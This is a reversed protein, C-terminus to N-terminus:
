SGTRQAADAVGQDPCTEHYERDGFFERWERRDFNRNAVRCAREYAEDLRDVLGIQWRQLTGEAGGSILWGDEFKLGLVAGTHGSLEFRREGTSTDWVRIKGYLNGSALRRDDGSFAVARVGVDEPERLILEPEGRWGGDRNRRWIRVTGDGSASALRDGGHSFELANVPGQHGSLTQLLKNAKPDWIGIEGDKGGTALELGKGRRDFALSLVSRKAELRHLYENKAVDVLQVVGKEDSTALLRSDPSFAASWIWVEHRSNELQLTARLRGNGPALADLAWVHVALKGGSSALFRRDPSFALAWVEDKHSGIAPPPGGGGRLSTLEISGDQGGTAALDDSRLAVSTLATRHHTWVTRPALGQRSWLRIMGDGAGTALTGGDPSIAVATAGQVHGTLETAPGCDDTCSSGRSSRGVATAPAGTRADTFRVAGDDGASVLLNGDPTFVVGRVLARHVSRREFRLKGDASWSRLGGDVTGVAIAGDPAVALCYIASDGRYFVKDAGTKLNWRRITRDRGASVLVEGDPPEFAIGSVVGHHEDLKRPPQDPQSLDWIRIHGDIDGMALKRGTPKFALTLVVMGEKVMGEKVVGKKQPVAEVHFDDTAWVVVQGQETGVALRTGDRSFALAKIREGCSPAPESPARRTLTCHDLAYLPQHTALDWILLRGDASGSALLKGDPSIALSDISQRHEHLTTELGPNSLLLSLISTRAQYLDALKGLEELTRGAEIALLLAQDVQYGASRAQIALAKAGQIEAKRKGAYAALGLLGTILAVVSVAAFLAQRRRRKRRRRRREAEESADLFDREEDSLHLRGGSRLEAARQLRGGRWLADEARGEGQWLGAAHHVERRVVLAERGEELWHALKGWATFLAEHAVEVTTDDHDGRSTLLRAEVFQELCPHVSVPLDSWAVPARVLRDQDDFRAMSLFAEKLEPEIARLEGAAPLVSEAVRAVAGRVGGLRDRYQEVTLRGERGFQLYLERLAFAVLPLANGGEADRVVAVTLGPDIELDDLLEAPGEVIRKLGDDLMPGLTLSAFELGRLAPHKQLEGLFDSRLTGLVMLSGGGDGAADRLMALLRHSPHGPPRGLLEEFQDVAVLVGAERRGSGLRLDDALESLPNAAAAPDWAALREYLSRWDREAEGELEGFAQALAGSLERLPEDGPKFPGVILWRERNRRLRPLLGARLLSSKGCGSAGLVMVVGASARWRAQNLVDLGTGIEEERGFFVAADEEQFALLGPYPSRSADWEFHDAADVGSIELARRLRAFAEERGQGLDIIQLDHLIPDATSGEEQLPIIAKGQSRAEIIEAFCWRSAASNDTALVVVARCSRLQRYLEREWNRGAPIGTEPDYDLFVSPHKLEETLWSKVEAALENDQSSHSIFITSM